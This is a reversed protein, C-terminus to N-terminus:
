VPTSKGTIKDTKGGKKVMLPTREDCEEATQTDSRAESGTRTKKGTSRPLTKQPFPQCHDGQESIIKQLHDEMKSEDYIVSIVHEPPQTYAYEALSLAYALSYYGCLNSYLTQKSTNAKTLKGSLSGNEMGLLLELTERTQLM